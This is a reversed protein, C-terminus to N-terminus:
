RRKGKRTSAVILGAGLLVGGVGLGIAVKAGTSLRAGGSAPVPSPSAAPPAAPAPAPSSPTVRQPPPLSTPLQPVAPPTPIRPAPPNSLNGITKTLNVAADGATKVIGTIDLGGSGSMSPAGGTLDVHAASGSSDLLEGDSYESPGIADSDFTPLEAYESAVQPADAM